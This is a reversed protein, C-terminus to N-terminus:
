GSKTPYKTDFPIWKPENPKTKNRREMATKMVAQWWADQIEGNPNTEYFFTEGGVGLRVSINMKRHSFSTKRNQGRDDNPNTKCMPPLTPTRARGVENEPNFRGAVATAASVYGGVYPPPPISHGEHRARVAKVKTLAGPLALRSTQLMFPFRSLPVSRGVKEIAKRRQLEVPEM